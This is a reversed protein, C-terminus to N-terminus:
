LLAELMQAADGYSRITSPSRKAARLWRETSTILSTLCGHETAETPKTAM